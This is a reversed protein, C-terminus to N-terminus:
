RCICTLKESVLALLSFMQAFRNCINLMQLVVPQTQVVECQPLIWSYTKTGYFSPTVKIQNGNRSKVPGLVPWLILAFFCLSFFFFVM